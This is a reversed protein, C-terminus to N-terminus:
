LFLCEQKNALDTVLSETLIMGCPASPDVEAAQPTADEKKVVVFVGAVLSSSVASPSLPTNGM